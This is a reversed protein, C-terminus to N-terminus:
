RAQYHASVLLHPTGESSNKTDDVLFLTGRQANAIKVITTIM